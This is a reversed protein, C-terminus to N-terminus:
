FGLRADASCLQQMDEPLDFAAIQDPLDVITMLLGIEM